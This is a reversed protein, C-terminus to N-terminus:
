LSDGAFIIINRQVHEALITRRVDALFTYPAPFSHRCRFKNGNETRVHGRFSPETQVM